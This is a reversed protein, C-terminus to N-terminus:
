SDPAHRTRKRPSHVGQCARGARSPNTRLTSAMTTVCSHTIPAIAAVNMIHSGALLSTFPVTSSYMTAQTTPMVM